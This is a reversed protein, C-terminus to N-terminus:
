RVDCLRHVIYRITKKNHTSGRWKRVCALCFCHECAAAFISPFDFYNMYVDAAVVVRLYPLMVKKVAAVFYLNFIM